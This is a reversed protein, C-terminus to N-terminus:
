KALPESYERSRALTPKPVLVLVFRSAADGFANNARKRVKSEDHNM